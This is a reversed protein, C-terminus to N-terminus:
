RSSSGPLHIAESALAVRGVEIRSLDLMQEILTVMRTAGSHIYGIDERQADLLGGDLGNLLFEAYGLVSQLPTRLEHSMTALMRAKSRTAAQAAELAERLAAEARKRETIDRTISAIGLTRGDQDRIPSLSVAVDIM